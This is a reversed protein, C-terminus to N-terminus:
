CKRDFKVQTLQIGGEREGRERIQSSKRTLHKDLNPDIHYINRIIAKNEGKEYLTGKEKCFPLPLPSSNSELVGM